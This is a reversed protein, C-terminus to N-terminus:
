KIKKFKKNRQNLNDNTYFARGFTEFMCMREDYLREYDLTKRWPILMETTQKKMARRHEAIRNKLRWLNYFAWM